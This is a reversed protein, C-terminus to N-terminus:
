CLIQPTVRKQCSMTNCAKFDTPLGLLRKQLSSITNYVSPVFGTLSCQTYVFCPLDIFMCGSYNMNCLLCHASISIQKTTKEDIRDTDPGCIITPLYISAFMSCHHHPLQYPVFLTGLSFKGMAVMGGCMQHQGSHCTVYINNQKNTFICLHFVIHNIKEGTELTFCSFHKVSVPKPKICM